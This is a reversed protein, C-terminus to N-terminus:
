TKQGKKVAYAILAAGALIMPICLMQGQSLGLANLDLHADPERFYEVFFRFTGYGLLFLGGVSGVPRPKASYLWLIVFLLVGELAFEYLQSPHRPM